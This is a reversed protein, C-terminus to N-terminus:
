LEKEFLVVRITKNEWYSFGYAKIIEVVDPNCFVAFYEVDQRQLESLIVNKILYSCNVPNGYTILWIENLGPSEGIEHSPFERKQLIADKLTFWSSGKDKIYQSPIYSWGINIEDGPGINYNKYEKRAQEANIQTIDFTSDREDLIKLNKKQCVVCEMSKKRKFGFYRALAISGENESATDYQAYQSGHDRAYDIAYRMLERGIGKKQESSKVRGGELWAIGNPFFKVRGFGIMETMENNAFGGYNLCNDDELWRAIIDPVYDDGEWIDKSIDNIAPIDEKSLERFYVRM